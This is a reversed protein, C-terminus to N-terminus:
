TCQIHKYDSVACFQTVNKEPLIQSKVMKIELVKAQNVFRGLSNPSQILLNQQFNEWLQELKQEYLVNTNSRM